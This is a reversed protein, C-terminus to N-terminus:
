PTIAWLPTDEDYYLKLENMCLKQQGRARKTPARKGVEREYRDCAEGVTIIHGLKGLAALERMRAEMKRAAVQTEQGTSGCFRQSRSAGAQKLKFDFHYYPTKLRGDKYKPIYVSM